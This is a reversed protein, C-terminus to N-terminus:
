ELSCSFSYRIICDKIDMNNMSKIFSQRRLDHIIFLADVVEGYHMAITDTINEEDFKDSIEEISSIFHEYIDPMLELVFSVLRSFNPLDFMWVLHKSFRNAIKAFSNDVVIIPECDPDLLNICETSNHNIIKKVELIAPRVSRLCQIFLKGDNDLENAFEDMFTDVYSKGNEDHFYCSALRLAINMIQEEELNDSECSEIAEIFKESPTKLFENAFKYDWKKEFELWRPYNSIGFLNHNCEPLCEILSNRKTACCYSCIDKKLAPCYRKAKRGCM